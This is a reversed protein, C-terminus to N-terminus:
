YSESNKLAPQNIYIQHQKNNTINNKAHPARVITDLWSLSALPLSVNSLFMKKDTKAQGLCNM